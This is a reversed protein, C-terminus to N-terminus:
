APELPEFFPLLGTKPHCNVYEVQLQDHKVIHLEVWIHMRPTFKPETYMRIFADRVNLHVQQTRAAKEIHGLSLLFALQSQRSNPLGSETDQEDSSSRQLVRALSISTRQQLTLRERKSRTAEGSM